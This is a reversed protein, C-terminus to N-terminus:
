KIHIKGDIWEISDVSGPTRTYEVLHYDDSVYYSSMFQTNKLIIHEINNTFPDTCTVEGATKIAELDKNTLVKRTDFSGNNLCLVALDPHKRHM